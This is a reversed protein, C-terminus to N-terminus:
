RTQAARRALYDVLSPIPFSLTDTPADLALVDKEIAADLLERKADLGSRAVLHEAEDWSVGAAQGCAVAVNRLARRERPSFSQIRGEYYRRRAADGSALAQEVAAACDLTGFRRVADLCAAVYGHLHQGFGLTAAAIKEALGAPVVAGTAKRVSERVVEASEEPRLMGLTLREFRSVAPSVDGDRTRLPKQLVVSSHQLGACLLLIPCGHRGEHLTALNMRAEGGINQVEDVTILMARGHWWERDSSERLLSQLSAGERAALEIGAARRLTRRVQGALRSSERKAAEASNPWSPSLSSVIDRFLEGAPARLAAADWALHAVEVKGGAHGGVTQGVAQGAFERVLQTKGIGQIGDVLVMGGSPDRETAVFRLRKHLARLERARGGFHLPRDRENGLEM